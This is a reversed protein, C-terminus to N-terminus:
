TRGQRQRRARWSRMVLLTPAIAPQLAHCLRAVHEAAAESEAGPATAYYAVVASLMMTNRAPDPLRRLQSRACALSADLARTLDEGDEYLDVYGFSGERLDQERDTLSDLLTLLVCISLYARDIKGAQARSTAPDAAAAVLAHVCLVSSAAGASLERWPLSSEASLAAAWSRLQDAGLHSAAHIHIQAGAARAAAAGVSEIVAGRAPLGSFARRAADALEHMYEAAPLSCDAARAPQAAGLAETFVAFLREGDAIPEARPRESLGDLLDFLLQLGVIAEVVNARQSVPAFTALMAGAEANFREGDLKALALSRTPADDIAEARVRWHDIQADVITALTRRYRVNALVLAAWSGLTLRGEACASFRAAARVPPRRAAAVDNKANFL